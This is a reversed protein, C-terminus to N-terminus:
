AFARPIRLLFIHVRRPSDDPKSNIAGHANIPLARLVRSYIGRFLWRSRIFDCAASIGQYYSFSFLVGPRYANGATDSSLSARELTRSPRM